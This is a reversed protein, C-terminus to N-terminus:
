LGYLMGHLGDNEALKLLLNRVDEPFKDFNDAVAKTIARATEDNEALKFLLLNRMDKPLKNFNYTVALAVDGATEDNEVLKFLLNGVDEPLKDFNDTITRAVVWAAEDNEALKLLLKSFVKENIKSFFEDKNVLIYKLAESYSPHSFSIYKGIEIKDDKFWNVIRDFEWANNQINPVLKEYEEKIFDKEFLSSIFLFSLFLIKDDTMSKIEKAFSQATEESKEKIKEKLENEAIINKTAIIFAKISLLTPLNKEDKLFEVIIKKLKENKFWECNEAEAWKLLIKRRKEFDYSPKKINLKKEFEKLDKASIKEKEFEKFVEERSTIIVYANNVNKVCDIITGIERELSERREYKIKGFPDEYYIIRYPKLENIINELKERVTKRDDKEDGKIWIPEYGKYYYKWMLRASTYTKGYEQSGTIFVIRDKKLAKKIENYELPPVYLDDIRCYM